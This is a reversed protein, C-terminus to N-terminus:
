GAIELQALVAMEPGLDDLFDVAALHGRFVLRQRLLVFDRNKDRLEIRPELLALRRPHGRLRDQDLLYQAMYYRDRYQKSSKKQLWLAQSFGYYRRKELLTFVKPSLFGVIVFLLPIFIIYKKM